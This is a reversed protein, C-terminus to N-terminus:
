THKNSKFPQKGSQPSPESQRATTLKSVAQNVPRASM